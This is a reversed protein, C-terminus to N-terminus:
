IENIVNIENTENIINIENKENTNKKKM